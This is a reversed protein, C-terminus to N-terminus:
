KVTSSNLCIAVYTLKTTINTFYVRAFNITFLQSNSSAWHICLLESYSPECYNALITIADAFSMKIDFVWFERDQPVYFGCMIRLVGNCRRLTVTHHVYVDRRIKESNLQASQMKRLPIHRDTNSTCKSGLLHCQM